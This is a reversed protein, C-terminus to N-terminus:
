SHGGFIILKNTRMCSHIMVCFLTRGIEQPAPTIDHLIGDSSEWITHFEAEIMVGYWEWIRWGM